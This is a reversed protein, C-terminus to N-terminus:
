ARVSPSQIKELRSGVQPVLRAKGKSTVLLSYVVGTESDIAVPSNPEATEESTKSDRSEFRARFNSDEFADNRDRALPLVSFLAVISAVLTLIKCQKM